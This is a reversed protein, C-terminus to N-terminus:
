AQNNNQQCLFDQLEQYIEKKTQSKIHFIEEVGMELLDADREQDTKNFHGFIGDAEIVITNEVLFDVCYRGIQRQEHYRLGMEDLCKGVIIEQKTYDSHPM